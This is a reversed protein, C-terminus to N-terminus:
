HESAENYGAVDGDEFDYTLKKGYAKEYAKKKQLYDIDRMRKANQNLSLRPDPYITPLVHLIRKTKNFEPHGKELGPQDQIEVFCSIVPVNLKAAYYYAGKQLPRPKRYNIWMEQEPYILVWHNKKAFVTALHKPFERGLYNVSQTIPISDVNRMLFGIWSPLLLNTDEIVFYLRKHAKMALRKIPLSDFQNYHNCTVFANSIQKVKKASGIKDTATLALAGINFVGRTFLNVCKRSLTESHQWFDNVLKIRQEKTLIPDDVEAKANFKRAAVNKKINAVVQRRHMGIIM